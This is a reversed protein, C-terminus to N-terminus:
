KGQKLAALGQVLNLLEETTKNEGAWWLFELEESTFVSLDIKLNEIKTQTMEKTM